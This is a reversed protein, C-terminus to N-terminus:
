ITDHSLAVDETIGWRLDVVQFSADQASCWTELEKWVSRLADWEERFDSFTSSLFVRFISRSM